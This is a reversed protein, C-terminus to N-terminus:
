ALENFKNLGGKRSLLIKSDTPEAQAVAALIARSSPSRIPHSRGGPLFSAAMEKGLTPYTM